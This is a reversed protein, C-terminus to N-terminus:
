RWQWWARRSLRTSSAAFFVGAGPAPSHRQRRTSACSRFERSTTASRDGAFTRPTWEPPAPPRGLSRPRSRCGARGRCLGATAEMAEGAASLSSAEDEGTRWRCRRGRAPRGQFGHTHGSRPVATPAAGHGESLRRTDAVAGCVGGPLQQGAPVAGVLSRRHASMDPRRALGWPGGGRGEARRRPRGSSRRGRSSAPREKPPLRRQLLPGSREWRGAPM